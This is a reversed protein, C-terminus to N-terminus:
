HAPIANVYAVFVYGDNEFEISYWTDAVPTFVGNSTHDGKFYPTIDISFYGENVTSPTIFCVKSHYGVSLEGIECAFTGEVVGLFAKEKDSLMVFFNECDGYENITEGRLPCGDEDYSAYYAYDADATHDSYTTGDIQNFIKTEWTEGEFETVLWIGDERAEIRMGHELHITEFVKPNNEALRASNEVIKTFKQMTEESFSM